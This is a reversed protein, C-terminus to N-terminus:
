INKPTELKFKGVVKENKISFFEHNENLNSFNVLDELNKLNEITDKTNMGIVFSDTDM